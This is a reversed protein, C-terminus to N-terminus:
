VLVEISYSSGDRIKDAGDDNGEMNQESASSKYFQLVKPHAKIKSPCFGSLQLGELSRVRSLAVYVMGYGFARSLDTYLKDLTMGQCKHISSAWALVLPIQKREAVVTSGEMVAWTEPEIVMRPGSDFEVIPLLVDNCIGTLTVDMHKPQCFGKVTGTAGNVLGTSTSLNKILMVRAGRCILLENPAIGQQLQRKWPDEGRDVAMYKFVEESLSEMRMDNVRKVDEKLPFLQVASSDPETVLCSQELVKLDEPDCEGRRVGQLLKIFQSDSQRFVKTLEVQLDFSEKWCKAEFAFEKGSSKRLDIIPQLQFFDGSVILQIGGWMKNKGRVERAIYELSDFLEAEVMSIEDIVLAEVKNWRKCTNKDMLVRDLLTCRDAMPYGIGAFSHLTQGSIACAAVGTSATVFVQSPKHCKRLLKIIHQVLITKGTGASGMIFVSNGKSVASLIQKQRDTWKIRARPNRPEKMKTKNKSKYRDQAWKTPKGSSKTSFNRYAAIATTIFKMGLMKRKKKKEIGKEPDKLNQRVLTTEVNTLTIITIFYLVVSFFYWM